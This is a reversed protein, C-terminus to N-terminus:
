KFIVIVPLGFVGMIRRLEQGDNYVIDIYNTMTM